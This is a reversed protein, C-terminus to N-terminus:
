HLEIFNNFHQMCIISENKDFRNSLVRAIFRKNKCIGEQQNNFEFESQYLSIHTLLYTNLLSFEDTFIIVVDIYSLNLVNIILIFFM